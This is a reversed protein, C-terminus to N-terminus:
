CISSNFMIIVMVIQIATNVNIIFIIENQLDLWHIQQNKFISEFVIISRIHKIQSQTM